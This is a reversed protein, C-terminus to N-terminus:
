SNKEVFGQYAKSREREQQARALYANKRKHHKRKYTGYDTLGLILLVTRTLPFTCTIVDLINAIIAKNTNKEGGNAYNTFWILHLGVYRGFGIMTEQEAQQEYHKARKQCAKISIQLTEVFVEKTKRVISNLQDYAKSDEAETFSMVDDVDSVKQNFRKLMEFLEQSEELDLYDDEIFARAENKIVIFANILKSILTNPKYTTKFNIAKDFEGKVEQIPQAKPQQPRYSQQDDRNREVRSQQQKLSPARRIPIAHRDKFIANSAVRGLDRGVQNIASQLFGM